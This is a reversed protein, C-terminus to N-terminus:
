GEKKGLDTLFRDLIEKSAHPMVVVHVYPVREKDIEVGMAALSYRNVVTDSPKRFYITNSQRNARMPQLYDYHAVVEKFLYTTNDLMSKADAVQKSFASESSFFYFEAPKVADRSCTITGPIQLIYEPDHIHGFQTLFTEFNARTTIFLGAPAPFGFFKHCSVAISDYRNVKRGTGEDPVEHLLEAAFQTHPLYGGFLAADLHLYSTRGTLKARIGEISDVAGKFTTGITAVVLAPHNPNANMQRELDDTDMSGDHNTGVVVWELNLLDRLIQISYHAEKTFYIKPMEGTQSKLITRGMYLGHMNSDTGSNSLFGWINDQSFGYVAGFRNILEREFLHGNFPIHSHAYPNGVNNFSFQNLGVAFLEKRWAFFEESPTTMNIPYGLLLNKQQSLGQMSKLMEASSQQPHSLLAHGLTINPYCTAVLATASSLGLFQRRNMLIPKM